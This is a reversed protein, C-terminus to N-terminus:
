VSFMKEILDSQLPLRCSIIAFRLKQPNMYGTEKPDIHYLHEKLREMANWLNKTLELHVISRVM